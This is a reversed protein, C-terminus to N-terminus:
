GPSASSILWQVPATLDHAGADRGVVRVRKTPKSIKVLKAQDRPLSGGQASVGYIRVNWLHQNHRLFQSLMTASQHLWSEPDLESKEEVADWASILLALNRKRAFRPSRNVLQLLEVIKVDEPMERPDFPKVSPLTGHESESDLLDGFDSILARDDEKDANIFLLISDTEALESLLEEDIQGLTAPHEFSEGRLDPLTLVGEKGSARDRIKLEIWTETSSKTREVKRGDIWDSELKNLHAADTSLGTLELATEVEQAILVYHLAVLFTSKGSNPMGAVLIRHNM